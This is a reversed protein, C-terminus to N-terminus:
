QLASSDCPHRQRATSMPTPSNRTSPLLSSPPPRRRPLPSHTHPTCITASPLPHTANASTCICPYRIDPTIPRTSHEGTPSRSTSTPTPPNCTSPLLHRTHPMSPRRCNLKPLQQPANPLHVSREVTPSRSLPAQSLSSPRSRVQSSARGAAFREDFRRVNTWLASPPRSPDILTHPTPCIRQVSKPQLTFTRATPHSNPTAILFAAKNTQYRWPLWVSQYGAARCM